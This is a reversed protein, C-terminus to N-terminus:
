KAAHTVRSSDYTLRANPLDPFINASLHIPNLLKKSCGGRFALDMGICIPSIIPMLSFRQPKLAAADNQIDFNTSKSPLGIKFYVESDSEGFQLNRGRYM